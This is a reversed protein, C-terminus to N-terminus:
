LFQLYQSIKGGVAHTLDVKLCGNTCPHINQFEEDNGRENKNSASPNSLNVLAILYDHYKTMQIESKIGKNIQKELTEIDIKRYDDELIKGKVTRIFSPM